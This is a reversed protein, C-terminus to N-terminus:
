AAKEYRIAEEVSAVPVNYDGALDAVSDGGLYMSYITRTPIGTGKITPRGFSVRPDIVILTPSRERDERTYPYLRVARRDDGIDIRKFYTGIWERWALQRPKSANVLQGLHEVFLDVGNHVFEVNALPHAVGLLDMAFRISARIVDRRIGGCRIGGCRISALVHAEVLNTFSLFGKEPLDLVPEFFKREGGAIYHRGCVWSRLTSKPLGLFAAADAPTYAAIDRPDQGGYIDM